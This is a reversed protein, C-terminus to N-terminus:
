SHLNRLIMQLFYNCVNLIPGSIMGHAMPKDHWPSISIMGNFLQTERTERRYRALERRKNCVM